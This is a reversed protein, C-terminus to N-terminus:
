PPAAAAFARCRRRLQEALPLHRGPNAPPHLPDFGDRRALFAEATTWNALEMAPRLRESQELAVFLVPTGLALCPLACHLRTTVVCAARQYIDLLARAKARREEDATAAAEAHTVVLPPRGSRAALEDVLPAPLDCAVLEGGRGGRARHELTLTLCGSHYVPVRHRQLWAATAHDRAGVPGHDRLYNGHRRLLMREPTIAWRRLRSPLSARLHFSVLLPQIRPHPPWRGPQHLFWGNLIIRVPGTGPPESDLAERPLIHDVQPLFAQAALSQIDDGLNDGGTHGLLAYEISM